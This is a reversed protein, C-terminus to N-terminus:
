GFPYDAGAFTPDVRAGSLVSPDMDPAVYTIFDQGQQLLARSAVVRCVNDTLSTLISSQDPLSVVIHYGPITVEPSTEVPKM